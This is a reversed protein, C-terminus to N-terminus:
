LGYRKKVESISAPAEVKSAALGTRKIGTPTVNYGLERLLSLVSQRRNRRGVPGSAAGSGGGASSGGSPIPVSGGGGGSVIQNAADGVLEMHWDEGPVPFGLGFQSALERQRPTLNVDVAAGHNHNSKGPEAALNGTGNLYAQYLAAQEENSRYASNVQIPEGSAKALAILADGLPKQFKLVENGGTPTLWKTSSTGVGGQSFNVFRPNGAKPVKNPGEGRVGQIGLSKAQRDVAAARDKARELERKAKPNAARANPQENYVSTILNSYMPDPGTSGLRWGSQEIVRIQEEPSKGRANQIIQPIGAGAGGWEGRLFAATADAAGEPTAFNGNAAASNPGSGTHGINLLNYDGYQNGGESKTWAAVVRPDLGTKRALRNIFRGEGGPIPIRGSARVQARAKRVERRARRVKRRTKRVKPTTFTKSDRRIQGRDAAAQVAELGENGVQKAGALREVRTGEANLRTSQRVAPAAKLAEGRTPMSRLTANELKREARDREQGIELNRGLSEQSLTRGSTGYKTHLREITSTVEPKSLFSRVARPRNAKPVRTNTRSVAKGAAAQSRGFAAESRTRGGGSRAKRADNGRKLKRNYRSPGPV